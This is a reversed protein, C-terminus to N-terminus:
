CTGLHCLHQAQHVASQPAPGEGLVRRKTPVRHCKSKGVGKKLEEKQHGHCKAWEVQTISVVDYKVYSSCTYRHRGSSESCHLSLFQIKQEIDGTGLMPGSIYFPDIFTQHVLGIFHFYFYWTEMDWYTTTILCTRYNPLSLPSVYRTTCVYLIIM